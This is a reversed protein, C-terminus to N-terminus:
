RASAGRNRRWSILFAINFVLSLGIFMGSTFSVAPSSDVFRELLISLTLCLAGAGGLYESPFYKKLLM